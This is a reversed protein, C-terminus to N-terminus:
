VRCSERLQADKLAHLTSAEATALETVEEELERAYRTLVVTGQV